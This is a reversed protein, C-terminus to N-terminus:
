TNIAKVVSKITVQHRKKFKALGDNKHGVRLRRLTIVILSMMTQRVYCMLLCIRTSFIASASLNRNLLFLHAIKTKSTATKLASPKSITNGGMLRM